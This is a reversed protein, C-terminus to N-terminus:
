RTGLLGQLKDRLTERLKQGLQGKALTDIDPRVKLDSLTGSIRVPIDLGSLLSSHSVAALVQFDVAQTLLNTSGKGTVRLVPSSIALDTTAAIGNTIEASSKFADFPTRGTNAVPPTGRQVWAQARNLEYGLDFGEVAGSTLYADLHGNLSKFVAARDSGRATAKLTFNGRGSLRGSKPGRGSWRAMDVDALHEDLSLMPTAGREDLTIDGSYRGGDIQAQSPFVHIVEDKSSLTMRANTFDLGSFELRGVRLTGNAQLEKVSSPDRTSMGSSGAAPRGASGAEPSDGQPELYRDVDIRDADLDFSVPLGQASPISLSGKVHTDDVTLRLHDLHLGDAGYQFDTSGSAQGVAKPDRTNPSPVGFHPIFERVILPELSVSGALGPDDLIRTGQLRGTVQAEAFTVAFSPVVATQAALSVELAPASAGWRIRRSTVPRSLLGNLTVAAFHYQRTAADMSLAFKAAVSSHEGPVGRDVDFDVSVPVVGNDTFPGTELWVNQMDIAQYRIRAGRLRISALGELGQAGGEDTRHRGTARLRARENTNAATGTEAGAGDGDVAGIEAGSREGPGTGTGAETGRRTEAGAASRPGLEERPGAMGDRVGALGEWNGRGTADRVLRVDLGEIDVRAVVLRHGLLPLLRPRVTAHTFSAFPGDGFGPPNGLAAPPVELAIWPFVSLRVRGQLVLDRGTSQKVVQVLKGQYDTPNVWWWIALLGLGFVVGAGAVLIGLVKATRV